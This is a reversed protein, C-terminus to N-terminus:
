PPRPATPCYGGLSPTWILIPDLVGVGRPPLSGGASQVSGNGVSAAVPAPAPPLTGLGHDTPSSLVPPTVLPRCQPPRSTVRPAGLGRPARSFIDLLADLGAVSCLEGAGDGGEGGQHLAHPQHLATATTFHM